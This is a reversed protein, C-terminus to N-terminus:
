EKRPLLIEVLSGRPKRRGITIRGQHAEIIRQTITLGLGTGGKKRTFFPEFVRELDDENIGKGTDGIAVRVFNDDKGAPEITVDITGEGEIAQRANLYINLLAQKLQVPDALVMPVESAYHQKVLIRGEEKDHFMFKVVEDNLQRIDCDAIEKVSPNAFSLLESVIRECRMAEKQIIEYDETHPNAKGANKLLYESYASIIGIPNNIEHAVGAALEGLTAMQESRILRERAKLLEAKQKNIIEVIFWSMLIVMWILAFKLAMGRGLQSISQEQVRVSLVFLVCILLNMLLNERATRFLAFGRLILFFYLIYFDSQMTRGVYYSTDFYVLATVFLVDVLYSVYCFGKIQNLQVRSFHFFYTQAVNFMAYLFFLMFIETAPAAFDTSWLWSLLTVAFIVWKLLLIARGEVHKLWLLYEREETSIAQPM